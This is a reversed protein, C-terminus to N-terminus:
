CFVKKKPKKPKLATVVELVASQPKNKCVGGGVLGATLREDDDAARV